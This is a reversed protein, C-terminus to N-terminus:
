EDEVFGDALKLLAADDISESGFSVAIRRGGVVAVTAPGPFRGAVGVWAEGATSKETFELLKLTDILASQDFFGDILVLSLENNESTFALTRKVEVNGIRSAAEKVIPNWQDRPLKSIVGDLNTKLDGPLSVALKSGKPLLDKLKEPVDAASKSEVQGDIMTLAIAAHKAVFYDPDDALRKLEAVAMPERTRGLERCAVQVLFSRLRAAARADALFQQAFERTQEEDSTAAKELSKRARHGADRITKAAAEIDPQQSLAAIDIEMDEDAALFRILADPDTDVENAELFEKSEVLDVLDLSTGAAAVVFLLAFVAIFEVLTFGRRRSLSLRTYM